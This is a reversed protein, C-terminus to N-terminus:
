KRLDNLVIGFSVAVNLSEAQGFKKISLARDALNDLKVSTGHAESGFAICLKQKSLTPLVQTDAVEPRTVVLEFGSEKLKTIEAEINQSIFIPVHFISGMSSRVVKPQYPDAGGVLIVGDVGFWDATRIMTGVNGPDRVDELLVLLNGNKFDDIKSEKVEVVAAVGQPTVTEVLRSFDADSVFLVKQQDFFSKIKPQFCYEKQQRSFSDSVILQIVAAKSVVADFVSKKGEVIFCGFEQRYKKQNLKSLVKLGYM